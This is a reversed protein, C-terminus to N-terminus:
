RPAIGEDQLAKGVECLADRMSYAEDDDIARERVDDFTFRKCFQALAWAKSEDLEVTFNITKQESM